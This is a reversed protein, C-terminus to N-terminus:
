CSRHYVYFGIHKVMKVLLIQDQQSHGGTIIFCFLCSYSFGKTRSRFTLRVIFYYTRVVNGPVPRINYRTYIICCATCKQYKILVICRCRHEDLIQMNEYHKCKATWSSKLAVGSHICATYWYVVSRGVQHIDTPTVATSPLLCCGDVVM